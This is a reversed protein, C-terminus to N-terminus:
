CFRIKNLLKITNNDVLCLPGGDNRYYSKLINSVICMIINKFYFLEFIYCKLFIFLVYIRIYQTILKNLLM